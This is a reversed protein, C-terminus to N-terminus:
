DESVAGPQEATGPDEPDEPQNEDVDEDLLPDPDPDPVFEERDINIDIGQLTTIPELVV